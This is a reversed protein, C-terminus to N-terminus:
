DDSGNSMLEPAIVGFGVIAVAALFEFNRNSGPQSAKQKDAYKDDKAKAKPAAAVINEGHSQKAEGAHLPLATGTALALGLLVKAISTFKINM